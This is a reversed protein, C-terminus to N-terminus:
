FLVCMYMVIYDRVPQKSAVNCMCASFIYCLVCRSRGCIITIQFIARSGAVPAHLGSNTIGDNQDIVKVQLIHFECQSVSIFEKIVQEEELHITRNYQSDESSMEGSFRAPHVYRIPIRGYDTYLLYLMAAVSVLWVKYTATLYKEDSLAVSAVFIFGILKNKLQDFRLFPRFPDLPEVIINQQNVCQVVNQDKNRRSTLFGYLYEFVNKGRKPTSFDMSM